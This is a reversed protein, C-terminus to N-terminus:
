AVTVLEAIQKELNAKELARASKLSSLKALVDGVQRRVQEVSAQSDHIRSLVSWDAILGDFFFDAFRLFGDVNVASLQADVRVDALETRFRSLLVQLHEAGDQAEDLKSHKAMDSIFGGGVLDWTGWGEASNLCDEIAEIQAMAANGASIAENLEKMQAAVEGRRRELAGLREAYFPDAGLAEKLKAYTQEYQGSGGALASRERRLEAKRARCDELQRVAADYKLKAAFAEQQEQELKEAKKNLLSYLMSTISTKKLNAVDNQEKLLEEKLSQEREALEQEENQLSRLMADLKKGRELKASLEALEKRLEDIM